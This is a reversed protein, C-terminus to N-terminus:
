LSGVAHAAYDCAEVYGRGLFVARVDVFCTWVRVEGLVVCHGDSSTALAGLGVELLVELGEGGTIGM